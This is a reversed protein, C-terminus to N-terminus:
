GEAILLYESRSCYPHGYAAILGIFPLPIVRAFVEVNITVNLLEHAERFRRAMEVTAIIPVVYSSAFQAFHAGPNQQLSPLPLPHINNVLSATHVSTFIGTNFQM